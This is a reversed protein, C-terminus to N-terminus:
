FLSFFGLIGNLIPTLSLTQHKMLKVQRASIM